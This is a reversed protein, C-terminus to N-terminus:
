VSLLGLLFGLFLASLMRRELTGILELLKDRARDAGRNLLKALSSKTGLLDRDRNDIQVITQIGGPRTMASLLRDVRRADHLKKTENGRMMLDFCERQLLSRFEIARQVVHNHIRRVVRRVKNDVSQGVCSGPGLQAWVLQLHPEALSIQHVAVKSTQ